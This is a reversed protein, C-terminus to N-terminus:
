RPWRFRGRLGEATLVLLALWASGVSWGALVDSPYHVGLVLRSTGILFGAFTVAWVIVHRHVPSYAPIQRSLVYALLGYLLISTVAHGSPFSFNTEVLFPSDFVPRERQFYQKLGQILLSNGVLGGVWIAALLRQRRLWLWGAVLVGLVIPPYVGALPTIASFFAVESKAATHHVTEVFLQDWQTLAQSEQLAEVIHLFVAGGGLVGVLALLLLPFADETRGFAASGRGWLWSPNKELVGKIYLRSREALRLGLTLTLSLFLSLSFALETPHHGLAEASTLWTM